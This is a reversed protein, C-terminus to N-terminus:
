LPANNGHDLTTNRSQFKRFASEVDKTAPDLHKDTRDVESPRRLMAHIKSSSMKSYPDDKISKNGSPIKMLTSQGKFDMLMEGTESQGTRLISTSSLNSTTAMEAKNIKFDMLKGGAESQGTLLLSASLPKSTAAIEARNNKFDMLMGVAESRETPLLSASRPKFKGAKEARDIKFDMPMGGADSQGTLLLSESSPKFAKGTEARDLKTSAPNRAGVNEINTNGLTISQKISSSSSCSRQSGDMKQLAVSLEDVKMQSEALAVSMKAAMKLSREQERHACSLAEMPTCVTSMESIVANKQEVEKMLVRILADFHEIKKLWVTDKAENGTDYLRPSSPEGPRHKTSRQRNWNRYEELGWLLWRVHDLQSQLLIRDKRLAKLECAQRSLQNQVHRHIQTSSAESTHWPRRDDEKETAASTVNLVSTRLQIASASRTAFPRMSEKSSQEDSPVDTQTSQDIRYSPICATIAEVESDDDIELTSNEDSEMIIQTVMWREDNKAHKRTEKALRKRLAAKEKEAQNLNEKAYLVLDAYKRESEKAYEQSKRLEEETLLLKDSMLKTRINSEEQIQNWAELRNALDVLELRLSTIEQLEVEQIQSALTENALELSAAYSQSLILKAKLQRITDTDSCTCNM